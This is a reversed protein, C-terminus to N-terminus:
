QGVIRYNVSLLLTDSSAASIVFYVTSDPPTTVNCPITIGKVGASTMAESYHVVRGAAQTAMNVTGSVVDVYIPNTNAANDYFAYIGNIYCRKNKMYTSNLTSDILVDAIGSITITKFESTQSDGSSVVFLSSAVALLFLIAKKM